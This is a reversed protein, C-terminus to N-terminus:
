PVGSYGDVHFRWTGGQGRKSVVTFKGSGTGSTGDAATRELRYYGVDYGLDGEVGRDLIEFRIRLRSGDGKAQVFMPRFSREIDERGRLVDSAPSLYLADETYLAAVAEASLAQYAADFKQYVADIGAHPAVGPAHTVVPPPSAEEATAALGLLLPLLALVKLAHIKM